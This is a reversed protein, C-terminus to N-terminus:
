LWSDTPWAGPAEHMFPCCSGNSCHGGSRWYACPERGAEAKSPLRLQEPGHAYTCRDGYKCWGSEYYHCLVVKYPRAQEDDSADVRLAATLDAPFSTLASELASPASAVPWLTVEVEEHQFAVLIQTAFVENIDAAWGAAEEVLFLYAGPLVDLWVLRVATYALVHSVVDWGSIVERVDRGGSAKAMVLVRGAPAQRVRLVCCVCKPLTGAAAHGLFKALFGQETEIAVFEWPGEDPGSVLMLVVGFKRFTEAWQRVNAIDVTGEFKVTREDEPAVEDYGSDQIATELLARLEAVEAELLAASGHLSASPEDVKSAEMLSNDLDVDPSVAEGDVKEKLTKTPGEEVKLATVEARQVSAAAEKLVALAEKLTGPPSRSPQLKVTKQLVETAGPDEAADELINPLLKSTAALSQELKAPRGPLGESKDLLKEFKSTGDLSMEQTNGQSKVDCVLSSVCLGQSGMKLQRDCPVLLSQGPLSSRLETEVM